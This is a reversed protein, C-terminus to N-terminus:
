FRVLVGVVATGVVIVAIVMEAMVSEVSNLIVVSVSSFDLGLFIMGGFFFGLSVSGGFTMAFFFPAGLFLM